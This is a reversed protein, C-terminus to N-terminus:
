SFLKDHLVGRNRNPTYFYLIIQFCITKYTLVWIFKIIFFLYSNLKSCDHARIKIEFHSVDGVTVNRSLVNIFKEVMVDFTARVYTMIKLNKYQLITQSNPMDTKVSAVTGIPLCKISVLTPISPVIQWITCTCM